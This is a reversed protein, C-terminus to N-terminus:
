DREWRSPKQFRKKVAPAYRRWSQDSTSIWPTGVGTQRQSLKADYVPHADVKNLVGYATRWQPVIGTRLSEDWDWRGLAEIMGSASALLPRHVEYSDPHPFGEGELWSATLRLSTGWWHGHGAPTTAIHEALTANRRVPLIAGVPDLCFFDDNMYVVSNGDLGYDIAAEAGLRVNDFVALPMSKFRNGPVYLDARLWPPQHGVVMLTLDEDWQQVPHLNTEWSRIAYRLEENEDGPRVPCILLM